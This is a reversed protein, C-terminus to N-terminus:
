SPEVFDFGSMNNEFFRLRLQVTIKYASSIVRYCVYITYFDDFKGPFVNELYTLACFTDSYRTCKECFFCDTSYWHLRLIECLWNSAIILISISCFLHCTRLSSIDLLICFVKCHIRIIENNHSQYSQVQMRCM